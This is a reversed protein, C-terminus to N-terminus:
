TYSLLKQTILVLPDSNTEDTTQVQNIQRQHKSTNSRYKKQSDPYRINNRHPSQTYNKQRNKKIQIGINHSIEHDIKIITTIPDKTIQDITQTVEHDITINNIAIIQIVETGITPIIEIDITHHTEQDIMQITDIGLIQIPVPILRTIRDTQIQDHITIEIIPIEVTHDVIDIQHPIKNIEKIQHFHTNNM